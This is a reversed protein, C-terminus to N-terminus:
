AASATLRFLDALDAITVGDALAELDNVATEVLLDVQQRAVYVRSRADYLQRDAADLAEHQSQSAPKWLLAVRDREARTAAQQHPALIQTAARSLFLRLTRDTIAADASFTTSDAITAATMLLTQMTPALQGFRHKVELRALRQAQSPPIVLTSNQTAM